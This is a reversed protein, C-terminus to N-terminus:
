VWACVGLAQAEQVTAPDTEASLMIVPWGDGLGTTALERLFELGTMPSMQYDCIVLDFNRGACLDLAEIGSHAQVVDRCLHRQLASRIVSRIVPDDDICMISINSLDILASQSM